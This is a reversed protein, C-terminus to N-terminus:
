AAAGHALNAHQAAEHLAKEEEHTNPKLDFIVKKVTGTFAYPAKDEYARDVVLGNDRGIDMGAYSTFALPVTRPITGKGIEQDNAHLTVTGGTGPKPEDADFLMRVTVEGTPLKRRATQKYTEVGLLSYSHNLRGRGDVWLAFGGIFDAHAVIV